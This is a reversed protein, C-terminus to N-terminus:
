IIGALRLASVVTNAECEECWGSASDPEVECTYNCRPNRCIGPSVCDFTAKELMDMVDMGEIKALKELKSM